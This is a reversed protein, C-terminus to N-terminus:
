PDNQLGKPANKLVKRLDNKSTRKQGIKTVLSSQTPPLPPGPPPPPPKAECSHLPSLLMSSPGEGDLVGQLRQLPAASQHAFCQRRGTNTLLENSCQRM